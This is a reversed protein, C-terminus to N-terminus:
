APQNESAAVPRSRVRAVMFQEYEQKVTTGAKVTLPDRRSLHRLWEEYDEATAASAAAAATAAAEAAKPSLVVEKKPGGGSFLWSREFLALGAVSVRLIAFYPIANRAMGFSIIIALCALHTLITSVIPLSIGTKHDADIVLWALFLHYFVLIFVYNTWPGDPLVAAVGYGLAAAVIFALLDGGDALKAILRVLSMVGM